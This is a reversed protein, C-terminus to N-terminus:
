AKSRINSIDNKKVGQKFIEYIISISISFLVVCIFQILNNQVINEVKFLKGFMRVVVIILPHIIYIDLSLDKLRNLRHGRKSILLAFLWYSVFPLLMYMSDHKVWQFYHVGYAELGMMMFSGIFLVFSKKLQFDQQYQTFLIGIMVYIPVFFFGNRTYDMLQFLGDLISKIFSIQSVIGYYSDGCLGIVYLVISIFLCTQTNVYKKLFLVICLGLIMAPFYWLHYFTGDILLDKLFVSLLHESQFYHNYIMVPLYLIISVFYIKMFSFLTKKMKEQSPYGERFLFYSTVIIFFPVALRGIIRTVIFDLSPSIVDFPSIHIAVVFLAAVIRFIDILPYGSM